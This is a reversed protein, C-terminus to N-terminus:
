LKDAQLSIDMKYIEALKIWLMGSQNLLNLFSFELTLREARFSLTRGLNKISM